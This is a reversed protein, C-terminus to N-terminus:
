QLIGRVGAPPPLVNFEMSGSFGINMIPPSDLEPETWNDDPPYFGGTGNRRERKCQNGCDRDWEKKAFLIEYSCSTSGGRLYGRFVCWNTQNM